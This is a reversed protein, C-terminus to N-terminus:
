RGGVMPPANLSLSAVDFGGNVWRVFGWDGSLQAFVQCMAYCIWLKTSVVVMGGLCILPFPPRVSASGLKTFVVSCAKVSLSFLLTTAATPM